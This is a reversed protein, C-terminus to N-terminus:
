NTQTIADIKVALTPRSAMNDYVGASGAAASIISKIEGRHELDTTNTTVTYFKGATGGAPNVTPATPTGTKHYIELNSALVDAPIVSGIKKLTTTTTSLGVSLKTAGLPELAAGGQTVRVVRFGKTQISPSDPTLTGKKITGHDIVVQDVQGTVEDVIALGSPMETVVAKVTVPVSATENVAAAGFSVASLALVGLIIKKM